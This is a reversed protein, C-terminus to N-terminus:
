ELEERTLAWAIGYNEKELETKSIHPAKPDSDKPFDSNHPEVSNILVIPQTHYLVGNNQRVWVGSQRMRCGINEWDVGYIKYSHVDIAKVVNLEEENIDVENVLKKIIRKLNPIIINEYRELKDLSKLVIDVCEELNIFEQQNNLPKLNRSLHWLAEKNTM